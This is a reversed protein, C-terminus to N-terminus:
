QGGYCVNEIDERWGVQQITTERGQGTEVKIEEQKSFSAPNPQTTTLESTSGLVQLLLRAFRM